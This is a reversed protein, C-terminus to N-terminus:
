ALVLKTRIKDMSEVFSKDVDSNTILVDLNDAPIFTDLSGKGVKTSDILGINMKSHSAIVKKQQILVGPVDTMGDKPSFGWGGFFAM